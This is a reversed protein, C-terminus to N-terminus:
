CSIANAIDIETIDNFEFVPPYCTSSLYTHQDDNAINVTIKNAAIAFHCNLEEAM